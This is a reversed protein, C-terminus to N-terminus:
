KNCIGAYAQMMMMGITIPFDINFKDTFNKFSKFKNDTMIACCFIADYTFSCM